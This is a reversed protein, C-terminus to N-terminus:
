HSGKGKCIVVVLCVEEVLVPNGEMLEEWGKTVMVDPGNNAIFNICKTKMNKSNFMDFLKLYQCVNTTTIRKILTRECLQKLDDLCYKNAAEYLEEAHTELNDVEGTYIFRLMEKLIDYTVDVIEVRGERREETAHEFMATFVPSSACIIAKHAKLEEPKDSPALIVDTFKESHFLEALMALTGKKYVTLEAEGVQGKDYINVQHSLSIECLIKLKGNPLLKKANKSLNERLVFNDFSPNKGSNNFTFGMCKSEQKQDEDDLVSLDIFVTCNNLTKLPHIYVSVYKRYYENVGTPYISLYWEAVRAPQDERLKPLPLIFSSSELRCQTESKMFSDFNCITWNFNSSLTEHVTECSTNLTKVYYSMERLVAISNHTPHLIVQFQPLKQCIIDYENLNLM